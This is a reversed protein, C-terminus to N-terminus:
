RPTCVGIYVDISYPGGKLRMCRLRLRNGAAVCVPRETSRASAPSGLLRCDGRRVRQGGIILDGVEFNSARNVRSIIPWLIAAGHAGWWISSTSKNAVTM